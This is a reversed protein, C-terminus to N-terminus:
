TSINEPVTYENHIEKMWSKMLDVGTLSKYMAELAIRFLGPTMRPLRHETQFIIDGQSFCIPMHKSLPDQANTGLRGNESLLLDNIAIDKPVVVNKFGYVEAAAHAKFGEGGVDVLVTEYNGGTGAHPYSMPYIRLHLNSILARRSEPIIQDGHLLVGDIDFAFDMNKAEKVQKKALEQVQSALIDRLAGPADSGLARPINGRDNIQRLQVM